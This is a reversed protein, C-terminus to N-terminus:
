KNDGQKLIPEHQGDVYETNKGYKYKGEYVLRNGLIYQVTSIQFDGNSRTKYGEKKLVACIDKMTFNEKERLEFIRRVMVAEDENVVLRKSGKVATYGYPAKGGAYGGKAAKTARGGSMRMTIFTRELESFAASIAEYVPKYIGAEGFDEAVSIVDINNRKLMYKFGFFNEMKRSLRDNKSVIVAQIPPNEIAGNLIKSLEPRNKDDDAGSIGEEVFWQMLEIGNKDCYAQIENKQTEIGYKDPGVQNDTSVRCYGIAKIKLM